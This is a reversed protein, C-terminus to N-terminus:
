LEAIREDKAQALVRQEAIQMEYAIKMATLGALKTLVVDDDADADVDHEDEEGQAAKKVRTV